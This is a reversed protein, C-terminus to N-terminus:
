HMACLLYIINMQVDKIKRTNENFFYKDLTNDDFHHYNFVINDIYQLGKPESFSYDTSEEDILSNLGNIKQKKESLHIKLKIQGIEDIGKFKLPFYGDFYNENDPFILNLPFKVEAMDIGKLKLKSHSNNNILKIKLFSFFSKDNLCIEIEDKFYFYKERPLIVTEASRRHEKNNNNINNVINNFSLNNIDSNESINLKDDECSTIQISQKDIQVQILPKFFLGFDDCLKYSISVTEIM